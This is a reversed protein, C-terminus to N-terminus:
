KLFMKKKYIRTSVVRQVLSFIISAITAVNKVFMWHEHNISLIKKGHLYQLTFIWDVHKVHDIDWLALEAFSLTMFLKSTSPTTRM